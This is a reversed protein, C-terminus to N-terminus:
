KWGEGNDGWSRNEALIDVPKNMGEAIERIIEVLVEHTPDFDWFNGYGIVEGNLLVQAMETADDVTIRIYARSSSNLTNLIKRMQRKAPSM